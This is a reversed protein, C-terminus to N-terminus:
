VRIQGGFCDDGEVVNKAKNLAARWNCILGNPSKM